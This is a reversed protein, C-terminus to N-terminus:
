WSVNRLARATEDDVRVCETVFNRMGDLSQTVSENFSEIESKSERFSEAYAQQAESEWASQMNAVVQEIQRLADEQEGVLRMAKSTAEEVANVNIITAAM